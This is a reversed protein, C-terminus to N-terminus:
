HPLIVIASVLKYRNGNFPETLSITLLPDADDPVGTDNLSYKGVGRRLIVGHYDPDTLPLNYHMAGLRFVARVRKRGDNAEVRWQLDQPRIFQLSWVMPTGEFEFVPIAIRSDGLLETGRAIWNKLLGRHDNAANRHLLRWPSADILWNEPQHQLPCHQKIGIRIVDLLQPDAGDPLQYHHPFLPGGAVSAVPRAWGGGDIRLGAVCRGGEKYSNALCLLDLSAM